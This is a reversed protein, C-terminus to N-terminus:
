VKFSTPSLMILSGEPPMEVDTFRELAFESSSPSGRSSLTLGSDFLRLVANAHAVHLDRFIRTLQHIDM